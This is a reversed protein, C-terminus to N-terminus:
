RKKKKKSAPYHAKGTMKASGGSPRPVSRVAVTGTIPKTATAVTKKADLPVQATATGANVPTTPTKGSTTPPPTTGTRQASKAPPTTMVSSSPAENAATPSKAFAADKPHTPLVPSAEQERPLAWFLLALLIVGVSIASDAVNFVAFSFKLSPIQFHVFDVVYGLRVRDILNGIAGGFILGFTTKLWPHNRPRTSAYLWVIVGVAVVIFFLLVGPSNTFSSFAAGTNKLYELTVFNGIVPVIDYLHQGSFHAVVLHKTIQDIVVVLLAIAGVLLDWRLQMETSLTEDARPAKISSRSFLAM